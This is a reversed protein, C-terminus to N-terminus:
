QKLKGRTGPILHNYYRYHVGPKNTINKYEFWDGSLAETPICWMLVTNSVNYRLCIFKTVISLFISYSNFWPGTVQESGSCHVTAMMAWNCAVFYPNPPRMKVRKQRMKLCPLTGAILGRLSTVQKVSEWSEKESPVKLSSKHPSCLSARTYLIIFFYM